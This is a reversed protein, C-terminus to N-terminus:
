FPSAQSLTRAPAFAEHDHLIRAVLEERFAHEILHHEAHLSGVPLLAPEVDQAVEVEVQEGFIVRQRKRAPLALADGDGLRKGGVPREDDVVLRRATEIEEVHSLDGFADAAHTFSADRLDDDRM